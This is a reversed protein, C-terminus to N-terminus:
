GDLLEGYTVSRHARALGAIETLVRVCDPSDGASQPHLFFRHPARLLLRLPRSLVSTGLRVLREQAVGAGLYGRPPLTTWRGRRLDRLGRLTVLYRFGAGRLIAPLSPTAMWAPACFGDARVGWAALRERGAAVREAAQEDGLSLFEAAGPAFARARLRDVLPGRLAGHVQHSWGHLVIEAGSATERRLLAVLPAPDLDRPEAPVVKLVRRTVGLADLRELLWEVQGLTSPAVDHIAVTLM